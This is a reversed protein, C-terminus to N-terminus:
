VTLPNPSAIFLFILPVILVFLVSEITLSPLHHTTSIGQSQTQSDNAFTIIPINDTMSFSSLFSHNGFILDSANSDLM